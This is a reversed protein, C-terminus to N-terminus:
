KNAFYTKDHKQRRLDEEILSTLFNLIEIENYYENLQEHDGKDLKMVLSYIHNVRNRLYHLANSYVM